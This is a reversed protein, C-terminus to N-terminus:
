GPVLRDAAAVYIAGGYASPRTATVAPPSFGAGALVGALDAASIPFPVWRNARRGDYEIVVLRGGPRLWAGLRAIVDAPESVFHLANALLIGDLSGETTGPLALPQTFDTNVAVIEVGDSAPLRGLSALADPDRDVAYIRSGRGILRALARTFTGGGAGFDAWVGARREVAGALLREADRINM